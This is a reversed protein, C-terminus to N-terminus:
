ELEPVIQGLTERFWQAALRRHCWNNPWILPPLEWCMLVPEADGALVHIRDWTAAPDLRALVERRYAVVFERSSLKRSLMWSLPCLARYQRYGSLVGRNGRAISIRGPGAYLRHSGTKMAKGKENKVRFM